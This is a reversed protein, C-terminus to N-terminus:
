NDVVKCNTQLVVVVVVTLQSAGDKEPQRYWVMRPVLLTTLRVLSLLRSPVLFYVPNSFRIFVTFKVKSRATVLADYSIV